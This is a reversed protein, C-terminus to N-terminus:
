VFEVVGADFLVEDVSPGPVSALMGALAALESVSVTADGLVVVLSMTLVESAGAAVLLEITLSLVVAESLEAEADAGARLSLRYWGLARDIQALHKPPSRLSVQRRM